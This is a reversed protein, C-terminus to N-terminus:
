AIIGLTRFVSIFLTLTIASLLTSFVVIQSAAGGDGGLEAVMTYGGVASPVGAMIMIIALDEGRFGVAFATGIAILPLILIKMASSLMSVKFRDDIGEFKIACGLCFLALPTALAALHTITRIAFTPMTIPSLGVIIGLGIGIIPPNTAIDKLTKSLSMKKGANSHATVVLIALVNYIPIVFALVLAGRAAATDGLVYIWLPLGLVALNSRFAGQVFASILYKRKIFLLAFGWLGAVSLLTFIIAFLVFGFDFADGIEAIYLSIFLNAPIGLRFVVKNGGNLFTEDIMGRGKVFYGLVIVLFIPVIINLSFVLNGLM